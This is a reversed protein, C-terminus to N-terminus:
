ECYCSGNASKITFCGLCLDGTWEITTCTTVTKTVKISGPEPKFEVPVAATGWGTEYWKQRCAEVTRGLIEAVVALTEEDHAESWESVLFAVEERTWRTRHQEGTV